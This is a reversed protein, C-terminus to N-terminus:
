SYIWILFTTKEPQQKEPQQKENIPMSFGETQVTM